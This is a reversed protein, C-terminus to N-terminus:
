QFSHGALKVPEDFNKQFFVLKELVKNEGRESQVFVDYYNGMGSEGKGEINYTTSDKIVAYSSITGLKATANDLFKIWETAPTVKLATASCLATAAEYNHEKVADMYQATLQESSNLANVYAADSHQWTYRFIRMSGDKDKIFYLSDVSKGYQWQLDFGLAVTTGTTTSTAVNFGNIKTFSKLEGLLISNRKFLKIWKAKGGADFAKESCYYLASDYQKQQLNKYFANAADVAKDNLKGANCSILVIVISVFLFPWSLKNRM